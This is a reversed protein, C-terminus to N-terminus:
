ILDAFTREYRQFVVMGAGAVALSVVPAAVWQWLPPAPTGLLSWRFGELLWTVPNANYLPLLDPPV